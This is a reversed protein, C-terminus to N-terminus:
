IIIMNIRSIKIYLEHRDELYLMNCKYNAYNAEEADSVVFLYIYILFYDDDDRLKEPTHIGRFPFLFM